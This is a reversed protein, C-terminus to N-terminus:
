QVPMAYVRAFLNAAPQFRELERWRLAGAVRDVAAEERRDNVIVVRGGPKLAVSLSSLYARRDHLLHDVRCLIALDVEGAALGSSEMPAQRASLNTEGARRADEAIRAVDNPRMETAIVRGAPLAKAFAHALEGRGAGIDAVVDHPGPHLHSLLQAAILDAEPRGQCAVLM